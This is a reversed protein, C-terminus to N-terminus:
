TEETYNYLSPFFWKLLASTVLPRHVTDQMFRLMESPATSPYIIRILAEGPQMHM